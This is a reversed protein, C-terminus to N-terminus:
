SKKGEPKTEGNTKKTSPQSDKEDGPLAVRYKAKINDPLAKYEEATLEQVMGNKRNTYKTKAM